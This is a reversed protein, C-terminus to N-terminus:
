MKQEIAQRLQVKRGNTRADLLKSKLNHKQAGQPREVCGKMARVVRPNLLDPSWDGVSPSVQCVESNKPDPSLDANSM